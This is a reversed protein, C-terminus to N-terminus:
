ATFMAWEAARRRVLGPLKKNGAYVWKQFNDAAGEYDGANLRKLLTSNKLAGAGLNFAFDVLADYQGQNLIATVWRQVAREAVVLDARLLTEAEEKSIETFNEGDKILHGYGITLKGAADYYPRARFGEFEKIMEILADSAKM